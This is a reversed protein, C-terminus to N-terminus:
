NQLGRVDAPVHVVLLRGGGLEALVELPPRTVPREPALADVRVGRKFVATVKARLEANTAFGAVHVGDSVLVLRDVRDKSHTQALLAEAMELPPGLGIQLGEPALELKALWDLLRARGEDNVEVSGSQTLLDGGVAIFALRDAGTCQGVVQRLAAVALAFREAPLERDIVLVYNNAKPAAWAPLSLMVLVAWLARM